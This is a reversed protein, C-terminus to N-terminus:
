EWYFQSSISDTEVSVNCFAADAANQLKETSAPEIELLIKLLFDAIKIYLIKVYLYM